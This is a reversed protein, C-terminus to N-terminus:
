KISSPMVQPFDMMLHQLLYVKCKWKSNIPESRDSSAKHYLLIEQTVYRCKTWGKVLTPDVMLWHCLYGILKLYFHLTIYVEVLYLKLQM